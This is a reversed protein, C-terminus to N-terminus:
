GPFPGLISAASRCASCHHMGLEGAHGEATRQRVLGSDDAAGSSTVVTAARAVSRRRRRLGWPTSLTM